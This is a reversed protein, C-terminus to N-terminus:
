AALNAAVSPVSADVKARNLTATLSSVLLTEHGRDTLPGAPRTTTVVAM